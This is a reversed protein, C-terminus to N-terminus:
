SIGACLGVGGMLLLLLAMAAVDKSTIRLERLATRNGRRYGRAEMADSLEDARRFVGLMLSIAQAKAWKTKESLSGTRIDMGRAMRAMRIRDFEEILTPMFRVAMSIMVALDQSPVGIYRLPRLLAEIGNILESPPTTMTLVAAASILCAVQWAVFAGQCLGEYTIKMSILPSTYLVKGDTFFIHLVFLLFMFVAIPKLATLIFTLTLRSILVAFIIFGSIMLGSLLNARFILISLMIVSLIKVRPDLRYTIADGHIYQGLKYM